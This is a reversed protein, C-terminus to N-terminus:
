RSESFPVQWHLVDCDCDCDCDLWLELCMMHTIVALFSVAAGAPVQLSVACCDAAKPSATSRICCSSATDQLCSGSCSAGSASPSADATRGTAPQKCLKDLQTLLVESSDAQIHQLCEAGPAQQQQHHRATGASSGLSRGNSCDESSCHRNARSGPLVMLCGNEATMDDLAVWLSLYPSHQVGCQPSCQQSDYHWGFASGSSHPPKVIYQENYLLVTTSGIAAQLVQLLQASQLFAAVGPSCPWSNRRKFYAASDARAAHGPGLEPLVQFICGRCGWISLLRLIPKV